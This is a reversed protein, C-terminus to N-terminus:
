SNKEYFKYTDELVYAWSDQHIGGGVIDLEVNCGLEKLKRYTTKIKEFGHDETGGVMRIPKGALHYQTIFRSDLGIGFPAIARFLEPYASGLHFTGLGGMSNGQLFIHERDINYDKEVAEIARIVGLESIKRQHRGEEDIHYPNEPCALDPERSNTVSPSGPDVLNGYSGDKICANPAMFIYNFRESWFQVMNKSLSYIYQEGLGGGHLAVVMKSPKASDYTTPVYLSYTMLKKEEEYWYTRYLEGDCKGNLDRNIALLVGTDFKFEEKPVATVVLEGPRKIYDFPESVAVVQRDKKWTIASFPPVDLSDTTKRGFAKSMFSAVPLYMVGDIIRCPAAMEATGNATVVERSGVSVEAADDRLEIHASDANYAVEMYPAYIRELDPLSILVDRNEGVSRHLLYCRNKEMFMSDCDPIYYATSLNYYYEHYTKM